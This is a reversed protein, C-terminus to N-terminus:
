FTLTAPGAYGTAVNGLSDYATVTVELTDGAVYGPQLGAVDYHDFDGPIIIVALISETVLPNTNDTVTLDYTGLTDIFLSVNSVGATFDIDDPLSSAGGFTLNALDAGSYSTYVAGLQDYATVTINATDGAQYISQVNTIEYHDLVRVVQEFEGAGIDIDTGSIRDNGFIDFDGSDPDFIGADIAQSSASPEITGSVFEPDVNLNGDTGPTFGTPYAEYRVNTLKAGPEAFLLSHGYTTGDTHRDEHIATANGSAYAITNVFSVNDTNALWVVKKHSGAFTNNLLKINDARGLKIAFNSNDYSASSEIIVNETRGDVYIGGSGSGTVLARRVITNEIDLIDIGGHNSNTVAIDTLESDD